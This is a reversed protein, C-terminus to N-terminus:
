TAIRLLELHPSVLTAAASITEVLGIVIAIAGGVTGLFYGLFCEPQDDILTKKPDRRRYLVWIWVTSTVGLLLVAVAGALHVVSRAVIEQTMLDVAPQLNEVAVGIKEAVADVVQTLEDDM